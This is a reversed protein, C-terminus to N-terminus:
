ILIPFHKELWKCLPYYLVLSITVFCFSSIDYVLTNLLLLKEFLLRFMFTLVYHSSVIFVTWKAYKMIVIVISTDKLFEFIKSLSFFCLSGTIGSVIFLWFNGLYMDYMRVKTNLFVGTIVWIPLLILGIRFIYNNYKTKKLIMGFLYFFLGLVFKDFGLFKFYEVGSVNILFSLLLSIVFVLFVGGMKANPLNLIKILIYIQFLCFFFWVPKNGLCEGKIYFFRIVFSYFSLNSTDIFLFLFVPLVLVYLILAPLVIRNFKKKVYQWFMNTEPKTVYGSLIFFMPMHFSYIARNIMDAFHSGGYLTHGLFVLFLGFSKALDVWLLRSDNRNSHATQNVLISKEIM